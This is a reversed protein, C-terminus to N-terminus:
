DEPPEWKGIQEKISAPITLDEDSNLAIKRLAEIYPIVSRDKQVAAQLGVLSFKVLVEKIVDTDGSLLLSAIDQITLVELNISGPTMAGKRLEEYEKRRQLELDILTPLSVPSIDPHQALLEEKIAERLSEDPTSKPEKQTM